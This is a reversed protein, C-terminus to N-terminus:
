RRGMASKLWRFFADQNVYGVKSARVRSDRLWEFRPARGFPDLHFEIERGVAWGQARLDPLVDRKWQECHVCNKQVIVRLRTPALTVEAGLTDADCDPCDVKISGDPRYWGKGGCLDCEGDDPEPRPEADDDAMAEALAVSAVALGELRERDGSADAPSCGALMVLCLILMLRMM